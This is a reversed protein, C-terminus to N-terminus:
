LSMVYNSLNVNGKYCMWRIGDREIPWIGELSQPNHSEVAERLEVNGNNDKYYMWRIGDREIPWIGELFQPNHCEVAERLEVNGNNDKYYM